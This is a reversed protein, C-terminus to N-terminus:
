RRHMAASHVVREQSTRRGSLEDLILIAVGVALPLLYYTARFIILGALLQPGELASTVIYEILGWGGPVHGILASLDAGVYLAAVTAYDADTFSRLSAYLVGAVSLLHGSGFFVQGCALGFSPVDLHFRRFSLHRPKMACIVLYALVFVLAATAVTMLGFSSIGTLGSLKECHWIIAVAGVVSMGVAVTMGAFLIIRGVSALDLGGRSYMRYRVAGSSLASLGISHGIGLAAIGTSAVRAFSVPRRTYRVALYEAGILFLYGVVTFLVALGITSTPVSSAANIIENLDYRRVVRYLLYLGLLSAAVGLVLGFTQRRRTM